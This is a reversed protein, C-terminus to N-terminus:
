LTGTPALWHAENGNLSTRASSVCDGRNQFTCAQELTEISIKAAIDPQAAPEQAALVQRKNTRTESTEARSLNRLLDNRFRM